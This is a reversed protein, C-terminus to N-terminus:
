TPDRFELASKTAAVGGRHAAGTLDSIREFGLRAMALPLERLIKLAARPDVFSATGVQIARAGAALAEIADNATSIGGVGIVPFHPFSAYSDYIARISMQRIAPGSLGGSRAGLTPLLFRKDLAMGLVTNILVVGSAGGEVCTAVVEQLLHTNPSLKVFRPLKCTQTAVLIEAVAQPSHGFMNMSDEINPCSVNIEVAKVFDGVGNLEALVKAYDQVTRGWISVITPVNNMRLKPAHFELWGRVGPGTLGVSNIMSIGAGSVRPAPNGETAFHALSKTVFAGLDRQDFYGQVETSFGAVGSANMVPSSLTLENTLRTTLDIM